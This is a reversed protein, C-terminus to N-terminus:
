PVTGALVRDLLTVLEAHIEDRTVGYYYDAAGSAGYTAQLGGSQLACSEYQYGEAAAAVGFGVGANAMDQLYDTGCRANSPCGGSIPEEGVGLMLTRIGLTAFVDQVGKIALDQGCQPNAVECTNPPGNTILLLYKRRPSVEGEGYAALTAASRGVVHGTPTEWRTLGSGIATLEMFEEDIADRNSEAIPVSTMEACAPDTEQVSTNAPGRFTEFGFRIRDEYLTVAGSAPDMLASYARNWIPDELPEFMGSTRQLLILVVPPGTEGGGSGGAGSSGGNGGSGSSGGSGANGSSGGSGGDGGTGGTGGSDVCDGNECRESEGCARTCEGCHLPNSLTDVCADGCPEGGNSCACAGDVCDQGAGCATACDGCHGPDQNTDVCEGDCASLEGSCTCVGGECTMGAGCPADCAGCHDESSTLDVCSRNCDELEDSCSERCESASCVEDTACAVDCSGCHEPNSGTAVCVDGCRERTAQCNCEGAACTEGAACANGCAGCHSNSVDTNVCANGCLEGVACSCAGDVCASGGLCTVNCAGCHQNDTATRVCGSGCDLYGSPCGSGAGADGGTGLDVCLESRCALGEDCSDDRKCRCGESGRDCDDDDDDASECSSALAAGCVVMLFLAFRRVTM